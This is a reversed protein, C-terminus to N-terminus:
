NSTENELKFIKGSYDEQVIMKRVLVTPADIICDVNSKSDFHVDHRYDPVVGKSWNKGNSWLSSISGLWYNESFYIEFKKQSRSVQDWEGVPVVNFKYVGEKLPTEFTIHNKNTRENVFIVERDPSVIMLSYFADVRREERDLKVPVSGGGPYEAMTVKIFDFSWSIKSVRGERTKEVEIQTNVTTHRTMMPNIGFTVSSSLLFLLIIRKSMLLRMM